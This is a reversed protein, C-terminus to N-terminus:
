KTHAAEYYRHRISAMDAKPPPFAMPLSELYEVMIQSVAFNRFTKHNAPIVFWPAHETSCKGIADDFAQMYDDWRERETYDSESIKWHKAPDDLRARFRKLQEDKSIHLFFKIVHTGNDSLTKEMGNIAEYRQACTKKSILGHVRVVLVDEYHSRNFIAVDGKAPAHQHARWLFDHDLELSTPQKFSAVTCGQPNMATFVHSITGDKGGADMAQLCILLSRKHEAYLLEQLEAIRKLNANLAKKMEPKSFEDKYGPDVNALSFAGDPPVRFKQSYKL